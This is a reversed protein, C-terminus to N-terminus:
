MGMSILFDRCNEYVTDKPLSWGHLCSKGGIKKAYKSINFQSHVVNIMQSRLSLPVNVYVGVGLCHNKGVSHPFHNCSSKKSVLSFISWSDKPIKWTSIEKMCFRFFKEGQSIPVFTDSWPRFCNNRSFVWNDTVEKRHSRYKTVIKQGLGDSRITELRSGSFDKGFHFGAIKKDNIMKPIKEVFEPYDIDFSDCSVEERLPSLQIKADWIFGNKGLTCLFKRDETEYTSGEKDVIVLSKVSDVLGGRRLSMPDYGGVSLVGGITLERHDPSVPTEYGSAELFNDLDLVTTHSSVIVCDKEIKIFDDGVRKIASRGFPISQGMMTHSLGVPTLSSPSKKYRRTLDEISSAEFTLSDDCTLIRGFDTISKRELM